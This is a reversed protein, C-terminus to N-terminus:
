RWPNLDISDFHDYELAKAMDKPLFPGYQRAQPMKEPPSLNSDSIDILDNETQPLRAGPSAKVHYEDINMRVQNRKLPGIFKTPVHNQEEAHDNFLLDIAYPQPSEVLVSESSTPTPIMRNKLSSQASTVSISGYGSDAHNLPSPLQKSAKQPPLLYMPQAPPHAPPQFGTHHIGRRYRSSEVYTYQKPNEILSPVLDCEVDEPPSSSPRPPLAGRYGATGMVIPNSAAHHIKLIPSLPRKIPSLPPQSTDAAIYKPNAPFSPGNSDTPISDKSHQSPKSEETSSASPDPWEASASASWEGPKSINREQDLTSVEGRSKVWEHELVEDVGPRRTSVVDMLQIIFVVLKGSFKLLPDFPFTGKGDIYRGVALNDQFPPKGTQICFTVAGLSWIDVASTYPIKRNTDAVEPAMYGDTGAKTQASSLEIDKSIGFDALKIQWDPAPKYILINAPKLDRHMVNKGHMFKLAKAIEAVISAGESEQFGKGGNRHREQIHKQLDQNPIYEMSIYINHQDEFWGFFEVFHQLHHSGYYKTTSLKILNPLEQTAKESKRIWKVARVQARNESSISINEEKWVEGFGGRGLLENRRWTERSSDALLHRTENGYIETELKWENLHVPLSRDM